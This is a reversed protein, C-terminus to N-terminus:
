ANFQERVEQVIVNLESIMMATAGWITLEEIEYCPAKIKYGSSHTIVRETKITEDNLSFLDVSIIRQVEYTNILFEPQKEVFGIYPSVLFNSPPIYLETLKGIVQIENTEIGIEEYTERLATEQLDRDTEEFKGGPFAVQGSHVGDYVPRQILLTNVGGESPLLVIMVASKRPNLLELDPKQMNKRGAPAMLLQADEGPLAQQLRIKLLEIFKFFM